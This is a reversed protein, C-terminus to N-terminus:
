NHKNLYKYIKQLLIEKQTKIFNNSKFNLYPSNRQILIVQNNLNNLIYLQLKTLILNLIVKHNLVQM